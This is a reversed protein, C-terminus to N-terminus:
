MNVHTKMRVNQINCAFMLYSNLADSSFKGINQEKARGVFFVVLLECVIRTNTLMSATTMNSHYSHTRSQLMQLSKSASICCTNENTYLRM